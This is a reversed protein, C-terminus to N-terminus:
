KIEDSDTIETWMPNDKPLHSIIRISKDSLQVEVPIADPPVVKITHHTFYTNSEEDIRPYAEWVGKDYHYIESEKESYYWSDTPIQICDLQSHRGKTITTLKRNTIQREEVTQKMANM